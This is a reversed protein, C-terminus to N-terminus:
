NTLLQTMAVYPALLNTQFLYFLSFLAFLSLAFTNLNQLAFENKM